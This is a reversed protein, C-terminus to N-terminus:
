LSYYQFQPSSSTLAGSELATMFFDTLMIPKSLHSMLKELILLITCQLTAETHSWRRIHDWVQDVLKKLTKDISKM